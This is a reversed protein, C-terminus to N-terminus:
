RVRKGQLSQEFLRRAYDVQDNVTVGHV